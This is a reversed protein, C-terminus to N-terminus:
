RDGLELTAWKVDVPDACTDAADDGVRRIRVKVRSGGVVGTLDLSVETEVEDRATAPVTITQQAGLATLAHRYFGDEGSPPSVMAHAVFIVAGTTAVTSWITSLRLRSNGALYDQARASIWIDNKAGNQFRRVGEPADVDTAYLFGAATAPSSATRVNAPVEMALASFEYVSRRRLHLPNSGTQQNWDGATVIDGTVRTSPTVWAM